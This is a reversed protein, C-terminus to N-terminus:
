NEYPNEKNSVRIRSTTNKLPKLTWFWLLALFLGGGVLYISFLIYYVAPSSFLIPKQLSLRHGVQRIIESRPQRYLARFALDGEQSEDDVFFWGEEYREQPSALLISSGGKWVEPALIRLVYHKGQSDAIPEFSFPNFMHASLLWGNLRKHRVPKAQREIWEATFKYPLLESMDIELLTCELYPVAWPHYSDLLFDVRCLDNQSAIFTQEIQQGSSWIGIELNKDDQYEHFGAVVGTGGWWFWLGFILILPGLAVRLLSYHTALSRRRHKM